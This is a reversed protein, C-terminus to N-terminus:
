DWYTVETVGELIFSGITGVLRDDSTVARLTCDPSTMVRGMYSDFAARDNPDETAFAAMHVSKPDRMQDFIADLDSDKVLRLAVTPM